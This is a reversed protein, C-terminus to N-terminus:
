RYRRTGLLVSVIYVLAMFVILLSIEADGTILDSQDLITYATGAVLGLGLTTAMANLHIRQQLEDLSLLHTRNAAIMGVGVVVNVLILLWLVTNNDPWLKAYAATVLALSALWCITWLFLRFTTRKVNNTWDTNEINMM